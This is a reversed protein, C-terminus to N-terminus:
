VARNIRKQRGKPLGRQRQVKRSYPGLFRRADEIVSRRVEDATPMKMRLRAERAAPTETMLPQVGEIRMVNMIIFM